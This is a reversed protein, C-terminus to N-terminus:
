AIKLFRPSYGELRFGASRVLAISRDNAPQINAELRHLGLDTFARRLALGLGEAMYGRGDFPVFAYYGLTASRFLGQVINDVNIVGVIADDERRCVLSTGTKTRARALFSAFADDDAPPSTWSHHLTRSARVAALFEERDGPQPRRLVVRGSVPPTYPRAASDDAWGIAPETRSTM